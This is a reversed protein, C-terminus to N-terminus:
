PSLFVYGITGVLTYGISVAYDREPASHTYFHDGAGNRLRYLPVAGCRADRLIHGVQGEYGAGECATDTTYLHHGDAAICRIFPQTGDTPVSSLFFFDYSEVTMGCCAAEDRSATYFHGNPGSSRHVAVRCGSLGSECSGDCDDDLLNCSEAPPMCTSACTGTCAITGASGCSTTCSEGSTCAVSRECGNSPDGDCDSFGATCRGIACSGAGCAATAHPIVCTRSCGGCHNPDTTTDVCAGGCLAGTCPGGDTGSTDPRTGSADRASGGADDHGADVGGGDRISGDRADGRGDGGAQACGFASPLLLFLPVVIARMM